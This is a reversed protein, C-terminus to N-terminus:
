SILKLGLELISAIHSNYDTGSSLYDMIKKFKAETLQKKDVNLRKYCNLYTLAALHLYYRYFIYKHESAMVLDAMSDSLELLKQTSYPEMLPNTSLEDLMGIGIDYYTLKIFSIFLELETSYQPYEFILCQTKYLHLTYYSKLNEFTKCTIETRDRVNLLYLIQDCFKHIIVTYTSILERKVRDPDSYKILNSPLQQWKSDYLGSDFEPLDPTYNLFPKLGGNLSNGLVALKLFLTKRNFQTSESFMKTDIHIGLASCMHILHSQFKRSLNLDGRLQYAYSYVLIAQANSLSPKFLIRKLNAKSFSEMYDTLEVTKQDYYHYGCYYIAALLSSPTSKPDFHKLNFITCIPHFQNIYLKVLEDWFAQQFIIQLSRAIPPMQYLEPLLIGSNMTLNSNEIIQSIKPVSNLDFSLTIILQSYSIRKSNVMFSTFHELDRFKAINLYTYTNREVKM